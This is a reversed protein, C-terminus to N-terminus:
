LIKYVPTQVGYAPLGMRSLLNDIPGRKYERYVERASMDWNSFRINSVLGSFGLGLDSTPRGGIHINGTGNLDFNTLQRIVTGSVGSVTKSARSDLTKVNEGDVYAKMLKSKKDVTISIHVWRKVPIYDIEIGRAAVMYNIKTNKSPPNPNFTKGDLLNQANDSKFSILLTNKQVQSANKHSKILVLPSSLEAGWAVDGRHWVHRIVTNNPQVEPIENVYLWFSVTGNNKLTPIDGVDVQNVEYGTKPTKTDPVLFTKKKFGQTGRTIVWYLVFAVFFAISAGIVLSTVAATGGTFQQQITDMAKEKVNALNDKMSSLVNPTQPAPAPAAPAPAPASPVPTAVPAAPAANPVEPSPPASPVPSSVDAPPDMHNM